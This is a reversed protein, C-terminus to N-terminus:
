KGTYGKWEGSLIRNTFDKMHALVARVKPMVDEGDVHVPRDSQNRLATHLVPRDETANIREGNFMAEIADSLRCEKALQVLLAVTQDNIRNKSFDLLIDELQISFKEFRAPDEAFLEKLSQENLTIYHDALYKYAQTTTFDVNPFMHVTKNQVLSLSQRKIVTVGKPINVS